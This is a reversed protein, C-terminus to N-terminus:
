NPKVVRQVKTTAKFLLKTIRWTLQKFLSKAKIDGHKQNIFGNLVM